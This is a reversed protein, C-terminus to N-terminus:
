ATPSCRFPMGLMRPESIVSTLLEVTRRDPPMPHGVRFIDMVVSALEDDARPFLRKIITHFALKLTPESWLNIAAYEAGVRLDRTRKAKGGASLAREIIRFWTPEDPKQVSRLTSFEGIAQDRGEWPRARWNRLCRESVDAPLFTHNWALFILGEVNRFASSHRRMLERVFDAAVGPTKHGHSSEEFGAVLQPGCM